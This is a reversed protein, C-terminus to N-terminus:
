ENGGLVIYNVFIGPTMIDDPDLEGVEVIEDAEVIVIDAATAMMPNFNRTAKSYRINGKKDVKAGVIIAVDARLPKELLYEKGDVEITKKGDAVITGIGTPTLIGGLGAGAARIREALTGQPVLEVDLEGANMQNGTEKNTGIHSAILKKVQKNVILKGIGVEPFSTDNAILTINKVGKEVLANVIKFPNKCGLFGGVMISMGDNIMNVADDVSILKNLNSVEGFSGIPTRVASVIVVEKM